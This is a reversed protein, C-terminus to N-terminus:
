AKCCAARPAICFAGSHHKGYELRLRQRWRCCCSLHLHGLRGVRYVYRQARVTVGSWNCWGYKYSFITDLAAISHLLFLVCPVLRHFALQHSLTITMPRVIEPISLHCDMSEMRKTCYCTPTVLLSERVSVRYNRIFNKLLFFDHIGCFRWAVGLRLFTFFFPSFCCCCIIHM